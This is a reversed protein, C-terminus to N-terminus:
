RRLWPMLKKVSPYLTMFEMVNKPARQFRQSIKWSLGPLGIPENFPLTLLEPWLSGIVDRPMYGAYRYEKQLALMLEFINRDALPALRIQNIHGYYSPGGWCGLRQEISNNGASKM